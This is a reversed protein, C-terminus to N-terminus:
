SSLCFSGCASAGRGRAAQSIRRCPLARMSVSPGAASQPREGALAPERQRRLFSPIPTRQVPTAASGCLIFRGGPPRSESRRIPRSKSRRLWLHTYRQTTAIDRHGMVEKRIAEPEGLEALLSAATHRLTHFTAGGDKRGFPLGAREVALQLGGRISKVPRQRYEVVYTRTRQRADRLIVRLQESIPVVHPRKLTKSTKHHHVTIYRFDPDIHEQWTLALVNALRLKPALAAIAVALRVHYSAHTLWSRLDEISITVTREIVTERPLDRFPNLTIGSATRYAPLLATKYMGRLVSRYHNRTQPSSGRGRMWAEFREIWIPDRIPHHLRLDHFPDSLHTDGKPRAGWFRLITRLNHELFEPRGMHQSRERLHIEAWDQFRPAEAAAPGELGAAQRRLRRKIEQECVAADARVSQRTSGAYRRGKSGSTSNGSTM